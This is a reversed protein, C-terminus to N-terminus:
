WATCSAASRTSGTAGASRYSVSGATRRSPAQSILTPRQTSGSRSSCAAAPGACSACWPASCGGVCLARTRAFPLAARVRRVAARVMIM